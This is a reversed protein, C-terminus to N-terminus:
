KLSYSGVHNGNIDFALRYETAGLSGLFGDEVKQAIERLIRGLETAPEDEFAANDCNIELTFKMNSM